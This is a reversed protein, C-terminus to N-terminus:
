VRRWYVRTTSRVMEKDPLHAHCGFPSNLTERRSEAVEVEHRTGGVAMVRASVTELSGASPALLNGCGRCRQHAIRAVASGSAAARHRKQRRTPKKNRLEFVTVSRYRHETSRWPGVYCWRVIVVTRRDKRGSKRRPDYRAARSAHSSSTSRM